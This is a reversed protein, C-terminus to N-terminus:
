AKIAGGNGNAIKAKIFEIHKRISHELLQRKTEDLALDVLAKLVQEGWRPIPKNQGFGWQVRCEVIYPTQYFDVLITSKPVMEEVHKKLLSRFIECGDRAVAVPLKRKFKLGFRGEKM